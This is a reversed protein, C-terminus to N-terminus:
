VLQERFVKCNITKIEAKKEANNERTPNINLPTAIITRFFTAFSSTDVKFTIESEHESRNMHMNTKGKSLRLNEFLYEVIFFFIRPISYFM